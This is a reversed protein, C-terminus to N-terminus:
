SKRRAARSVRAEGEPVVIEDLRLWAV